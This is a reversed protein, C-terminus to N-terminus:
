ALCTHRMRVLFRACTRACRCAPALAVDGGGVCARVMLQGWHRERMAPNRLDTILPMTRKFAEITDKIWAWVPWSKLERGLKAVSKGMRVAVEEMEEVQM